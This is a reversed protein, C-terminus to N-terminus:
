ILVYRQYQCTEKNRGTKKNHLNTKKYQRELTRYKNEIQTSTFNYGNAALKDRITDWMKSKTKLAVTKRVKPRLEELLSLLLKTPAELWTQKQSCQDENPLPTFVIENYFGNKLFQNAVDQRYEIDM